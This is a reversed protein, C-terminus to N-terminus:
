DDLPEIAVTVLFSAHNYTTGGVSDDKIILPINTYISEFSSENDFLITNPEDYISTYYNVPQYQFSQGIVPYSLSGSGMIKRFNLRKLVLKTRPPLVFAFGANFIFTAGGEISFSEKSDSFQFTNNLQQQTQLLENQLDILDGQAIVLEDQLDILDNELGDVRAASVNEILANVREIAKQLNSEPIDATAKFFIEKAQPKFTDKLNGM